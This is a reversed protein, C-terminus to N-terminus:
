ALDVAGPEGSAWLVGAAAEVQFADEVIRTKLYVGAPTFGAELGVPIEGTVRLDVIKFLGGMGGVEPTCGSYSGVTELHEVLHGAGEESVASAVDEDQGPVSTGPEDYGAGDQGVALLPYPLWCTRKVSIRLPQRFRKCGEEEPLVGTTERRGAV